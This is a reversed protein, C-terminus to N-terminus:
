AAQPLASSRNPIRVYRHLGPMRADAIPVFGVDSVLKRGAPTVPRAFLNAHRYFPQRLFHSMHLIGQAARGPAVVAWKYIAIPTMLRSSLCAPDPQSPDFEGLLLRELGLPNLLLMAYIGVITQRNCVVHVNNRNHMMVYQVVDSPAIQSGFADKLIAGIKELDELLAPRCSVTAKKPLRLSDFDSSTRNNNKSAAKVKM